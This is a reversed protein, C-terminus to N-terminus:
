QGENCPQVGLPVGVLFSHGVDAVGDLQVHRIAYGTTFRQWRYLCDAYHSQLYGTVTDKWLPLTRWGLTSVLM